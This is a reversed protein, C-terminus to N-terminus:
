ETPRNGADRDDQEQDRWDEEIRDLLEDAVEAEMVVGAAMRIADRESPIDAMTMKGQAVATGLSLLTSTCGHHRPPHVRDLVSHPWFKGHMFLCGATHREAAGIEWFAGQPSLVRLEMQDLAAHMRVSAADLRALAYGRERRMLGSVASERARTERVRLEGEAAERAPSPPLAAVRDRERPFVTALAKPLDTQLREAAKRDFERTREREQALLREILDADSVRKALQRRLANELLLSFLALFRIFGVVIRGAARAVEAASVASAAAVAGASASGAAQGAAAAAAGAAFAQATQQQARTEPTAM